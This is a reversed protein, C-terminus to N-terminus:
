KKIYLDNGVRIGRPDKEILLETFDLGLESALELGPTIKGFLMKGKKVDSVELGYVSSLMEFGVMAEPEQIYLYEPFVMEVELDKTFDFGCSSCIKIDAVLHEGCNTCLKKDLRM